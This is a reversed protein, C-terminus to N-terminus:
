GGCGSGQLLLHDVDLAENAPVWSGVPPFTLKVHVDVFCPLTTSDKKLSGTGTDAKASAGTTM